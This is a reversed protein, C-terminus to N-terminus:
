RLYHFTKPLCFQADHFVEAATSAHIDGGAQFTKILVPDGSMHALSRLDIKSYDASIFINNKAPVFAKRIEKGRDSRIPINQLNPDTSSLRGTATGAQHFTTYVRSTNKDVLELLSDVYTSILKSLERCSIIKECIPHSSALKTLVEEDTSFGTKTKRVPPLKLKEFLIYSLQKPSNLVFEEGALQYIEKEIQSRISRFKDGVDRIYDQDIAIGNLEMTQIVKVLPMELNQFLDWLNQEKLKPLLIQSLRFVVESDAAAYPAALEIDVDAFTEAKGKGILEDIRTMKEGLFDAAIDKLGYGKRSPDLCYVALMTDFCPAAVLVGYRELITNDFKLNHGLIQISKDVFLPKLMDAVRQASLQTKSSLKHGVPVYWAENSWCALSFGVISCTRKNLGDTELDYSIIKQEKIETILKELEREDYVINVKRHTNVSLDKTLSLNEVGFLESRFELRNLLDILKETNPKKIQFEHIEKNLPVDIKLTILSRNNLVKERYAMLKEKLKPNEGNLKAFMEELTGYMSILKSATKDGVGPVGAVNDVKDGLLCLYDILQTPKFGYREFVKAQDYEVKKIEDRVHIREDVLQLIDKDGSLILVDMGANRGQVALTAIVDDAEFGDKKICPLGWAQALQESLPL